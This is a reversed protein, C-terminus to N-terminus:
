NKRKNKKEIYERHQEPTVEFCFVKSNKPYIVKGNKVIYLTCIKM